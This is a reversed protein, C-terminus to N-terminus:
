HVKADPDYIMVEAEPKVPTIQHTELSDPGLLEVDDPNDLGTVSNIIFRHSSIRLNKHGLVKSLPALIVEGNIVGVMCNSKGALLATVAVSGMASALVRDDASPSGHM